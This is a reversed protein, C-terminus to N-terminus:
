LHKMLSNKFSNNGKKVLNIEDFSMKWKLHSNRLVYKRLYLIILIQMDKYCNSWAINSLTIPLKSKSYQINIWFSNLRPRPWITPNVVVHKFWHGDSSVNNNQVRNMALHVWYLKFGTWLSTYEICSSGQEYRRTSLVVQVRNMALHVWYLKFGTWLSTYEICCKTILNTLPKRWTSWNGGGIFSVEM